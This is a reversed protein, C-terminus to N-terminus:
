MWSAGSKIKEDMEAGALFCFLDLLLEAEYLALEFLVFVGLASMDCIGVFSLGELVEADDIGVDRVDCLGAIFDDGIGICFPYSFERILYSFYDLWLGSFADLETTFIRIPKERLHVTGILAEEM